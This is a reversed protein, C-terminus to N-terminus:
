KFIQFNSGRAPPPRRLEDGNGADRQESPLYALLVEEMVRPSQGDHICGISEIILGRNHYEEQARMQLKDAIPIAVLNAVLSGYLTTLLAIAMGMGIGSPDDMKTLMQVLGVLTGIMGFAPASDGIARFVREGLQHREISLDMDLTLAKRIFDSSHGDAIMLIGKEFFPNRVEVQELALKGKKRGIMSLQVAQKIIDEAHQERHLFASRVGNAFAQRATKMPFKILVAATTGGLVIMLGPINVFTMLDSSSSIAASIIAIGAILGALTAVDM